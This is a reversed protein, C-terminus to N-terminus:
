GLRFFVGFVFPRHDNKFVLSGKTLRGGKVGGPRAPAVLRLNGRAPLTIGLFDKSRNPQIIRLEGIEMLLIIKRPFSVQSENILHEQGSKVAAAMADIENLIVRGIVLLLFGIVVKGLVSPMQLYKLQRRVPWFEVSLFPDPVVCALVGRVIPKEFRRGLQAAGQETCKLLDAAM